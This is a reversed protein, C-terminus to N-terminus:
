VGAGTKLRAVFGSERLRKLHQLGAHLDPMPRQLAQSIKHTQLTTNRPRPAKLPSDSVSVPHVLHEDCQFVKAIELAFEFKSCPQSGVVHFLGDLQRGMMELIIESLDNV